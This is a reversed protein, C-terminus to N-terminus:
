RAGLSLAIPRGSSRAPSRTALSLLIKIDFRMSQQPLGPMEIEPCSLQLVRASLLSDKLPGRSDPDPGSPPWRGIFCIFTSLFGCIIEIANEGKSKKAIARKLHIAQACVTSQDSLMNTRTHVHVISMQQDMATFSLFMILVHRM